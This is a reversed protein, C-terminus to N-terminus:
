VLFLLTTFIPFLRVLWCGAFLLLIRKMGGGFFESKGEKEKKESGAVVGLKKDRLDLELGLDDKKKKMKVM